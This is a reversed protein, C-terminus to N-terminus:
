IRTAPLVPDHLLLDRCTRNTTSSLSMQENTPFLDAM